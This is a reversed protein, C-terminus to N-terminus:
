LKRAKYMNLIKNQASGNLNLLLLVGANEGHDDNGIISITGASKQNIYYRFSAIAGDIGIKAPVFIGFTQKSLYFTMNPFKEISFAVAPLSGGVVGPLARGGPLRQPDLQDLSGDVIDKLSVSVSLLTGNSQLDPSIELYSYNYKPINYRLGGDLQVNEFVMSINLNDQLLQVNPGKVGAIQINSSSNNGCSNALGLVSFLFILIVIKKSRNLM